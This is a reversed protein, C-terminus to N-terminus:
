QLSKILPQDHESRCNLAYPTPVSPSLSPLPGGGCDLSWLSSPHHDHSHCAHSISGVPNGSRTCLTGEVPRSRPSGPAYGQPIHMEWSPELQAPERQMLTWPRAGKLLRGPFLIHERSPIGSERMSGRVWFFVGLFSLPQFEKTGLLVNQPWSDENLWGCTVFM